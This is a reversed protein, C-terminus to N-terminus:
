KVPVYPLALLSKSKPAKMTLLAGAARELEDEYWPDQNSTHAYRTIANVVAARTNGRAASTDMEWARVLQPITEKPKKLPVLEREYLGNFIGPLADEFRVPLDVGKPVDLTEADLKEEIAYDWANLFARLSQVGERLAIRLRSALKGVDGIHRIRDLPKNAEDIVILNLCLNQWVLASVVISGDGSDSARVRIGAKFFEGAVYHKPQVNSHFLVDFSTRHGDYNFDARGDQPMAIKIAEAVRDVDFSTYAPTVVGYVERQGEPGNRTRFKIRDREPAPFRRREYESLTSWREVAAREDADLKTAHENFNHARLQPWCKDMLYSAGGINMRNLLVSFAERTLMFRGFGEDVINRGSPDRGLLRLMRGDAAMRLGSAAVCVDKREEARIIARFDDCAKGVFPRANHEDISRQANEEGLSVVPTGRRYVTERFSFGSAEGGAKLAESRAKGLIDIEGSMFREIPAPPPAVPPPPAAVIEAQFVPRPAPALDVVNPVGGHRAVMEDCIPMVESASFALRTEGGLEIRHTPQRRVPAGGVIDTSMM